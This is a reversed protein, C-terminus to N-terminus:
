SRDESHLVTLARQALRWAVRPWWALAAGANRLAAARQGAQRYSGALMLRMSAHAERRRRGLAPPLDARGFLQRYAYRMDREMVSISRSMGGAHVRYKILPRDVYAVGHFAVLFRALLDWDASTSLNTDFGQLRDFATRTILATSSCSVRVGSGFLVM